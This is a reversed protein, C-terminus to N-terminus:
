VKVFYQYYWAHVKSHAGGLFGCLINSDIVENRLYVNSAGVLNVGDFSGQFDIGIGFVTPIIEYSVDTRFYNDARVVNSPIRLKYRDADPEVYPLNIDEMPIAPHPDLTTLHEIPMNPFMKLFQHALQIMLVGGRSHGIFHKPRVLFEEKTMLPTNLLLAFLHDASAQINGRFRDSTTFPNRFSAFGWNYIFIQEKNNDGIEVSEWQGTLPNNKWISGGGARSKIAQAQQILWEEIDNTPSLNPQFGHTIVTIGPTYSESAVEIYNLTEIGSVRIKYYYTIGSPLNSDEYTSNNASVEAIKVFPQNPSLSREIIYGTQTNGNNNWALYTTNQVRKGFINTPLPVGSKLNYAEVYPSLRYKLFYDIRENQKTTLTGINNSCFKISTFFVEKTYYSMINTLPPNNFKELTLPENIMTNIGDIVNFNAKNDIFNGSQWVSEPNNSNFTPPNTINKSVNFKGVECNHTDANVKYIFQDNINQLYAGNLDIETDSVFDCGDSQDDREVKLHANQFTHFLGFYHGMEHAVINDSNSVSNGVVYLADYLINDFISKGDPKLVNYDNSQLLEVSFPAVGKLGTIAKQSDTMDYIGEVFYINIANTNRNSANQGILNTNVDTRLIKWYNENTTNDEIYSSSLQYFQIKAPLFSTNLKTIFIQLDSSSIAENNGKKIIWPKIAIWTTENSSLTAIRANKLKSFAKNFKAGQNPLLEPTGCVQGWGEFSLILLLLIFLKRM